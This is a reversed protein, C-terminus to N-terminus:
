WLTGRDIYGLTHDSLGHGTLEIPWVMRRPKGYPSYHRASTAWRPCSVRATRSEDWNPASARVIEDKFM